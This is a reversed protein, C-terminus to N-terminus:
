SAQAVKEEVLHDEVFLSRCNQQQLSAEKQDACLKEVEPEFALTEPKQEQRWSRLNENLRKLTRFNRGAFLEGPVDFESLLASAQVAIAQHDEPALRIMALVYNAGWQFRTAVGVSNEYARKRWALAEDFNDAKEALSGLGSMFYYPSASKELEALLLGKADNVLGAERYIHSIQNIVSQREFSDPTAEDAAKLEARLLKQLDEELPQDGRTALQLKPVWGALKEAKSLAEDFRLDFISNAWLEALSVKHADDIMPLALIEEMYYALSDWSALTLSSSSLIIELRKAIAPDLNDQGTEEADDKETLTLLYNMYFRNSLEGEPASTSLRFFLETKDTGEPVASADQFWSYYALQYFEDASLQTSDALAVQVLDATSRMQNLSLELVTNYRSIDIGGPIRTIEEGAPNFVIMTPYGMVGFKEGWAQAEDTDGDLYVPVFLRTLQIFEQSKFVTHKIEQCPPCWVAGWYLFLPKAESEASDFAAQISGGFWEINVDASHSVEASVDAQGDVETDSECATMVLTAILLLPRFM